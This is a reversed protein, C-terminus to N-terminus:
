AFGLGILPAKLEELGIEGSGDLDLDDFCAKLNRIQKDTFELQDARGTGKM